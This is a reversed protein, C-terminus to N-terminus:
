RAFPPPQVQVWVKSIGFLIEVKGNYWSSITVRMVHTWMDALIVGM